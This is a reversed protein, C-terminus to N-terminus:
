PAVKELTNKFKRYVKAIENWKGRQIHYVDEDQPDLTPDDSEQLLHGVPIPKIDDVKPMKIKKNKFVKLCHMQVEQKNPIKEVAMGIHFIVPDYFAYYRGVEVDDLTINRRVDIKMNVAEAENSTSVHKVLMESENKPIFGFYNQTGIIPKYLRYREEMVDRDISVEDTGVYIFSLKSSGLKESAFEYLQIASNILGNKKLSHVRAAQKIVAGLADCTSQPSFGTQTTLIDTNM